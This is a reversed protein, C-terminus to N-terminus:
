QKLFNQLENNNPIGIILSCEDCVYRTVMSTSDLRERVNKISKTPHQCSKQIDEIEKEIKQREGLLTAVKQSKGM